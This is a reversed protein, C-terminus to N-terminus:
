REFREKFEHEIDFVPRWHPPADDSFLGGENYLTVNGNIRRLFPRDEVAAFADKCAAKLLANIGLLSNGYSTEYPAFKDVHFSVSTKPTIGYMEHYLKQLMESIHSITVSGGDFRGQIQDEYKESPTMGICRTLVLALEHVPIRDEVILHIDISM